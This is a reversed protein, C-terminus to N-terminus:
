WYFKSDGFIFVILLKGGIEIAKSEELPIIHVPKSTNGLQRMKIEMKHFRQAGEVCIRRFVNQKIAFRKVLLAIPRAASKVFLYGM